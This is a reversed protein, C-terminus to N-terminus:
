QLSNKYNLPTMGTQQKFVTQFYSQSSFGLMTSIEALSMGTTELLLKSEKIKEQNIFSSITLGTNNKFHRCVFEMSLNLHEAIDRTSIKEYLHNIVYRCIAKINPTNAPLEQTKKALAAFSIFMENLLRLISEAQNLSKYQASFRDSMSLAVNFDAGGQIAARSALSCSTLFIDQFARNPNKASTLSRIDIHNYQNWFTSLEKTKGHMIYSLIQLESQSNMEREAGLDFILPDMKNIENSANLNVVSFSDENIIFNLLDVINFLQKESFFSVNRFWAIFPAAQITDDGVSTLTERLLTAPVAQDSVPGLVIFQNSDNLPLMGCYLSLGLSGIFASPRSSPLAMNQILKLGVEPYPNKIDFNSVIQNKEYLVIPINFTKQYKILLEYNNM